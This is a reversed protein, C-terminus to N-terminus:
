AREFVAWRVYVSCLALILSLIVGLWFADSQLAAGAPSDVSLAPRAFSEVAAPQEVAIAAPQGAPLPTPELTWAALLTVSLVFVMWGVRVQM